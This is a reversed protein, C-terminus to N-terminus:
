DQNLPLLDSSSAYLALQLRNRKGTKRMIVSIYNRVTGIALGLKMAIEESTKGDGISALIRLEMKSLYDTPDEKFPFKVKRGVQTKGQLVRNCSSLIALVRAALRPSIFCGGGHICRLVKPLFEIETEMHVFGSVENSAARFLQYDSIRSTTIVVTTEPSRARLLPPIEVGEIFELQNDIISIDPKLSGILKLADYGDKGQALVKIDDEISLLSAIKERDHKQPNIIVTNIM